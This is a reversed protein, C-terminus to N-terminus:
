PDVDVLDGVSSLRDLRELKDFPLLRALQPFHRQGVGPRTLNQDFDTAGTGTVGIQVQHLCRGPFPRKPQRERKAM